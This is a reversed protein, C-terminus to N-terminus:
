HNDNANQDQSVKPIRPRLRLRWALSKLFLRTPPGVFCKFRVWYPFWRSLAIEYRCRYYAGRYRKADPFRALLDTARTKFGHRAWNHVTRLALRDMVKMMLERKPPPCYRLVIEPDELLPQLPFDETHSLGSAERHHVVAPPGVIKFKENIGVRMFFTTDEGRVCRKEAYFGDYNRATETRVMSNGVHLFLLLSEAWQGDEDGQLAYEGCRVGRRAWYRTMDMQKPWEYYMTAVLAADSNEVAQLANTLYWPHWEDDSDLFALWEAQALAIGANRAAGPGQNEQRVLEIREDAIARVIDAGNDTSGDDVVILRWDRYTQTQISRVARGVTAAKNYLAMVIDVTAM